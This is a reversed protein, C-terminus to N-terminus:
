KKLLLVRDFDEHDKLIEPDTWGHARAHDAAQSATCAALEIMLTGGDALLPRANEILSKVFPLGDPSARLASHPEHDKVNPEVADWECDPIYPPNSLIWDFPQEASIPELLDGEKFDIRDSLGHREANEAALALAQASIDTAVLEAEAINKAVGVAICGSGTCIDAIRIPGEREATRESQLVHELITETSPRPILARSDAKFDLGFFRAEGTLYQIPEHNLARKVLDRLAEREEPSALRDQEMYLRLRECSIVHSLLIEASLRPSDLERQEFTQSMWGLLRRTTWPDQHKAATSAPKPPTTTM